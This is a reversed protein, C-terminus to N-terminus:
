NSVNSLSLLWCKKEIHMGASSLSIRGYLSRHEKLLWAKLINYFSLLIGYIVSFRILVCSYALPLLPVFPFFCVREFSINFNGIVQLDSQGRVKEEETQDKYIWDDYYFLNFFFNFLLWINVPSPASARLFSNISVHKCLSIITTKLHTYKIARLCSLIDSVKGQRM